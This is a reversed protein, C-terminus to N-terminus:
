KYNEINRNMERAASCLCTTWMVLGAVRKYHSAPRQNLSITLDCWSIEMQPFKIAIYLAIGM